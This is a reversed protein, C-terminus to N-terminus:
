PGPLSNSPRSAKDQEELGLVLLGTSVLILGGVQVWFVREGLFAVALGLGIVPVLFFWQSLRSVESGQILWYWGATVFATGALALVLLVASFEATWRIAQGREFALSALLLPLSGLLLQWATLALLSAGPNARKIVVSGVAFAASSALALLAGLLGTGSPSLLAPYALLTVGGLGSLLALVKGWTLREALLWAALLTVLLPQSNGLVTAVGAETLKPSIFMLGYGAASSAVALLLLLGWLRRPPLALSGALPLLAAGALLLRLGAFRLPPAYALGIKILVFCAATALMIGLLTLVRM